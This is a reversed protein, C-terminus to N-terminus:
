QEGRELRHFRRVFRRDIVDKLRMVWRGSAAWPPYSLVARGDGTNLLTLFRQQPAYSRPPDDGACAAALNDRLVPGERVAYVGAKPTDPWGALSAADGAAFVRADSVSRLREDVLLFGHQHV